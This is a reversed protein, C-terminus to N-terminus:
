LCAAVAVARMTSVALSSVHVCHLSNRPVALYRSGSYSGLSDEEKVKRGQLLLSHASPGWPVLFHELLLLHRNM